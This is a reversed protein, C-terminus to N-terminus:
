VSVYAYDSIGVHDCKCYICFMSLVSVNVYISLCVFVCDSINMSCACEYMSLPVWVYWM